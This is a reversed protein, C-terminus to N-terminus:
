WKIASPRVPIVRTLIPTPGDFLATPLVRDEGPMWSGDAIEDGIYALETTPFYRAIDASGVDAMAIDVAGDLVYPFPMEQKSRGVEITVNFDAMLLSIQEILYNRYLDPRTVTVAYDGPQSLRAYARGLRPYVEGPPWTLRLEPYAFAGGARVSPDPPPGGALFTKLAARLADTTAQYEADLREVIAAARKEISM